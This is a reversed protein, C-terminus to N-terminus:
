SVLTDVQQNQAESMKDTVTSGLVWKQPSRQNLQFKEHTDIFM